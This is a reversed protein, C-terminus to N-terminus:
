GDHKEEPAPERLGMIVANFLLTYGCNLCICVVHTYARGHSLSSPRIVGVIDGITWADETCMPCQPGNTKESIWQQAKQNEETTWTPGRTKAM